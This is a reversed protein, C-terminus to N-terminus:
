ERLYVTTHKKTHQPERAECGRCWCGSRVVCASCSYPHIYHQADDAAQRKRTTATMSAVRWALWLRGCFVVFCWRVIFFYFLSSQSRLRHRGRLGAGGARLRERSSGGHRVKAAHSLTNHVASFECECALVDERAFMVVKTLRSSLAFRLRQNPILTSAPPLYMSIHSSTCVQRVSANSVM